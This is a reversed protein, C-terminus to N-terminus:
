THLTSTEVSDTDFCQFLSEHISILTASTERSQDTEAFADGNSLTIVGLNNKENVYMSHVAGPMSGDHGFYRRGNNMIRWYWGLGVEVLLQQETSSNNLDESYYPILGGGVATRINAISRPRLISSGNSLFMRLYTSLDRASM